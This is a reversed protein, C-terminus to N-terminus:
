VAVRRLISRMSAVLLVLPPGAIVVIALLWQGLVTTMTPVDHSAMYSLPGAIMVGKLFPHVTEGRVASVMSLVIVSATIIAMTDSVTM